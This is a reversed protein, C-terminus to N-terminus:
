RACLVGELVSSVWTLGGGGKGQVTLNVSLPLARGLDSRVRRVQKSIVLGFTV